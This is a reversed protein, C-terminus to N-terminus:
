HNNKKNTIKNQNNPTTHKNTHTTNTCITTNHKYQHNHNDKHIHSTHFSVCVGFEIGITSEHTTHFEHDTFQLLISSKGVGSSGVIIFKFLHDFNAMEKTITYKQVRFYYVM